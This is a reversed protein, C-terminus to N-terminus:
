PTVGQPLREVVLIRSNIMGMWCSYPILGPATPTFEIINDGPVLEQQIGFAPIIVANNCGNIARATARINFRVPLGAQVTIEGFRRPSLDIAVTQIGDAIVAATGRIAPATRTPATTSSTTRSTTSSTTLQAASLVLPADSPETAGGAVQPSWASVAIPAQPGPMGASSWARALTSMGLFAVLIAGARIAVLRFKSPILAGGAGFLGLLPVTGLSFMFMALAGGLASGTGLAYLQMAQLPGCPMLGNALGVVFPGLRATKAGLKAALGPLFRPLRILGLLSLAMLLMFLGAIAMLVARTAPTFGIAAGLAGVLGGIITYALVRGANYALSPHLAAVFRDRSGPASPSTPSGADTASDAAALNATVDVSLGTASGSARPMGQSLAIGGCMAVCHFSTLIGALLLAGLSLSADIAPALSFLGLWDLGLMLLVLALGIAVTLLSPRTLSNKVLIEKGLTYNAKHLATALKPLFAGFDSEPMRSDLELSGQRHNARAGSIGSFTKAINEVRGECHACSLGSIHFRKPM